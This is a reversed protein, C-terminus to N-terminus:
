RRQGRPQAPRPTILIVAVSIVAGLWALACVLPQRALAGGVEVALATAALLFAATRLVGRRGGSGSLSGALRPDQRLLDDGIETLQRRERASMGM